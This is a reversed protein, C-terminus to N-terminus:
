FDPLFGFFKVNKEKIRPYYNITLIRIISNVQIKNRDTTKYIPFLTPNGESNGVFDKEDSPRVNVLATIHIIGVLFGNRESIRYIPLTSAKYIYEQSDILSFKYIKDCQHAFIEKVGALIKISDDFFYFFRVNVGESISYNKRYQQSKYLNDMREILEKEQYGIILYGKLTDLKGQGISNTFKLSFVLM